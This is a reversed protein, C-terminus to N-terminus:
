TRTEVTGSFSWRTGIRGGHGTVRPLFVTPPGGQLLFCLPWVAGRELVRLGWGANEGGVGQRSGVRGGAEGQLGLTM